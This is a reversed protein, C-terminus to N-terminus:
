SVEKLYKQMLDCLEGKSKAHIFQKRIKEDSLVQAVNQLATLHNNGNSFVLGFVLTVPIDLLDESNQFTIAEEPRIIYIANKLAYEPETHCIAINGEELKIGTPYKKEREKLKEEYEEKVYGKDYLVKSIRHFMDFKDKYAEGYIVLEEDIM